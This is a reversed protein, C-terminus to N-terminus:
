TGLFYSIVGTTLVGSGILMGFIFFVKRKFQYYDTALNEFKDCLGKDGNYGKLVLKIDRVDLVIEGLSKRLEKILEEDNL